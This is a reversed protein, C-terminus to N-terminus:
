RAIYRADIHSKEVNLHINYSLATPNGPLGFSRIISRVGISANPRAAITM